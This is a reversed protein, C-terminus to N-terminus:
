RPRGFRHTPGLWVFANTNRTTAAYVLWPRTTAGYGYRPIKLRRPLIASGTHIAVSLIREAHGHCTMQSSPPAAKCATASKSGGGIPRFTTKMSTTSLMSFQSSLLRTMPEPSEDGDDLPAHGFAQLLRQVSKSSSMNRLLLTSENEIRGGDETEGEWDAICSPSTKKNEKPELIFWGRRDKQKTHKARREERALM